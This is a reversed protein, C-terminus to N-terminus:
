AACKKSRDALAVFEKVDSGAGFARDGAGTLMLVRVATDAALGHLTEDLLATL